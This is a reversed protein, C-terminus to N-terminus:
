LLSENDTGGPADWFVLLAATSGVAVFGVVFVVIPGVEHEEEAKGDREAGDNEAAWVPKAHRFRSAVCRRQTPPSRTRRHKLRVLLKWQNEGLLCRLGLCLGGGGLLCLPLHSAHHHDHHQAEQHAPHRKGWKGKPHDVIVPIGEVPLGGGWYAPQNM